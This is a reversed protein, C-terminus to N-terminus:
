IGAAGDLARVSRWTVICSSCTMLLSAVVPHLAGAAALAVGVLNYGLAIWITSRLSRINRRCIEIAAPLATLDARTWIFDAVELTLTSGGSVAVSVACASMAAADNLGDGVFAVKRGSGSMERCRALKDDPTLRTLQETIPVPLARQESDGTMLVCHIGARELRRIAAHSAPAPKEDLRVIASPIGNVLVAIRHHRDERAALEPFFANAMGAQVDWIEDTELNRVSTRIGTGAIIGARETQWVADAPALNRLAQAIPHQVVRESAGVLSRLVPASVPSQDLMMLELEYEGAITVTGTKDFVVTDVGALKEVSAGNKALLGLDGLRRMGAWVSIPTAFGLACPCAVLLVAMSNFVAATIGSRVYWFVGTATCIGMLVPVFWLMIRDAAVQAPAPRSKVSDLAAAIRDIQRAAGPSTAEIDLTSDLVYTGALVRDGNKRAVAFSEGTMEAERVLATGRIVVGDVPIATGPHVRVVDATRITSAAVTETQGRKTLRECLTDQPDWASLSELVRREGYNAISRGASYVVLLISAVEWFVPGDGRIMSTISAAVAGLFSLVFLAEVTIRHQQIAEFAATMLPWGLLITVIATAGLVLLQLTLREQVSVESTNVALALTMSNVALFASVLIRWWGTLAQPGSCACVYPQAAAPTM